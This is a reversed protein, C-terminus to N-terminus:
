RNNISSLLRFPETVYPRPASMERGRQRAVAIQFKAGFAVELGFDQARPPDNPVVSQCWTWLYQQKPTTFTDSLGYVLRFVKLLLFGVFLDNWVAHNWHNLHNCWSSLLSAAEQWVQKFASWIWKICVWGKRFISKRVPFFCNLFLFCKLLM